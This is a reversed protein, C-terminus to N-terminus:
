VRRKEKSFLVSGGLRWLWILGVNLGAWVVIRVWLPSPYYRINTKTNFIIGNIEIHTAGWYKPKGNAYFPEFGNVFISDRLPYILEELFTSRTQDKIATYAFEPPYNLRLPLFPFLTLRQYSQKYFAMVEARYIYSYYAAINPVQVTDGPEVSKLGGPLSSFDSVLKPGPLVMYVLLALSFAAFVIKGIM